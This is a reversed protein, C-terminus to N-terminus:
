ISISIRLYYKNAIYYFPRGLCRVYAYFGAFYLWLPTESPNKEVHQSLWGIMVIRFPRTLSVVLIVFVAKYPRTHNWMFRCFDSIQGYVSVENEKDNFDRGWPWIQKKGQGQGKGLGDMLYEKVTGDYYTCKPSSPGGTTNTTWMKNRSLRNYELTFRRERELCSEVDRRDREIGELFLNFKEEHRHYDFSSRLKQQESSDAPEETSGNSPHDSGSHTPASAAAAATAASAGDVGTIKRVVM